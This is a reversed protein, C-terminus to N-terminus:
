YQLTQGLNAYYQYYQYVQAYEPSQPNMQQLQATYQHAYQQAQAKTVQAQAPQQQVTEVSSNQQVASNQQAQQVPAQDVQQAQVPDPQTKNIPNQQNEQHSSKQAMQGEGEKNAQIKELHSTKAVQEEQKKPLEEVVEAESIIPASYDQQKGVEKVPEKSVAAKKVIDRPPVNSNKKQPVSESPGQRPAQQPKNEQARQEAPAKKQHKQQSQQQKSQQQQLPRQQSSQQQPPRQQSQQQQPPRQQSQQQKMVPNQSGRQNNAKKNQSNQINEQRVAQPQQAKQNQKNQNPSQVQKINKEINESSKEKLVQGSGQPVSQNKINKNQLNQGGKKKKMTVKGKEPDGQSVIESIIDRPQEKNIVANNEVSVGEEGKISLKKPKHYKEQLEIIEEQTLGLRGKQYKEIFSMVDAVFANFNHGTQKFGSAMKHGGGGFHEAIPLTDVSVSTSRISASMVGELSDKLLIVVEAGPANTMLEDILGEAEEPTSGTEVLDEKTITSYVVRYIPDEKIKSLVRGWLKLTSLQKTKYVNQIIEQQRAGLEILDAALELAKPSTNTHQFSGTDVVLGTLLLTAIDEGIFSKYDEELEKIIEYVISTTSAATIDVLNLQGFGTNTVHHDINVIPKSYFMETNEEYIRGLHELDGSDLVFILDYEGIAQKTSMNESAFKGSKPTIIINLTDGDVSYKLKDVEANDSKLSIIFDNSARMSSELGEVGPLFNYIDPLADYSLATVEKERKELFKKMVLMASLGDGDMKQHTLVLINKKGELLRDIQQILEKM